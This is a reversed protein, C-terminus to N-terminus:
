RIIGGTNRGNTQIDEDSLSNANDQNEANNEHEALKNSIYEYYEDIMIGQTGIFEIIETMAKQRSKGIASYPNHATIYDQCAAATEKLIPSLTMKDTTEADYDQYWTCLKCVANYVNQYALSREEKIEVKGTESNRALEELKKKFAEVTGKNKEMVEGSFSLRTLKAEAYPVVTNEYNLNTKERYEDNKVAANNKEDLQKDAHLRRPIDLVTDFYNACPKNHICLQQFLIQELYYDSVITIYDDSFKDVVPDYIKATKLRNKIESTRQWAADIEDETLALGKLVYRLEEETIDKIKAALTDSIIRIKELPPIFHIGTKKPIAITGMSLDNDIGQVGVLRNNNDFIYTMNQHHRDINGCIYDLIQLDALDRKLTASELSVKPRQGANIQWEAMKYTPVHLLNEYVVGNSTKMFVGDKKTGDEYCVTMSHSEALLRNLGLLNAIGTMACNRDTINNNYEIGAKDYMVTQALSWNQMREQRKKELQERLEKRKQRSDANEIQSKIENVENRHKEFVAKDVKNNVLTETFFGCVKEGNEDVYSIPHRASMANGFTKLGHHNLTVVNRRFNEPFVKKEDLCNVYREDEKLVKYLQSVLTGTMKSRQANQESVSAYFVCLKYLNKIQKLRERGIPKYQENEDKEYCRDIEANLKKLSVQLKKLNGVSNGATRNGRISAKLFKRYEEYKQKVNTKDPHPM